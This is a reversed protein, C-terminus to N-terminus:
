LAIFFTNLTIKLFPLKSFVYIYNELTPNKPILAFVDNFADSMTKLSNSIAFIIPVILIFVIVGFLMHWKIESQNIKM